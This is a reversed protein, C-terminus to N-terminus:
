FCESKGGHTGQPNIKSYGCNREASALSAYGSSNNKSGSYGESKFRRNQGRVFSGSGNGSRFGRNKDNKDFSSNSKKYNRDKKYYGNVSAATGGANETNLGEAM